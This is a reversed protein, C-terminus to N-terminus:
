FVTLGYIQLIRHPLVCQLFYIHPLAQSSGDDVRMSSPLVEKWQLYKRYLYLISNAKVRGRSGCYVNITDLVIQNLRALEKATQIALSPIEDATNDYPFRYPQWYAGEKDM